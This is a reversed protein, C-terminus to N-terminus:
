VSTMCVNDQCLLRSVDTYMAVKGYNLIAPTSDIIAKSIVELERASMKRGSAISALDVGRSQINEVDLHIMDWESVESVRTLLSPQKIKLLRNNVRDLPLNVFLRHRQLEHYTALIFFLRKLWASWSPSFFGVVHLLQLALYSLIARIINGSQKFTGSM